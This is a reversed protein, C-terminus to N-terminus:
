NVQYFFLNDLDSLTGNSGDMSSFNGLTDMCSTTHEQEQLMSTTSFPSQVAGLTRTSGILSDNAM